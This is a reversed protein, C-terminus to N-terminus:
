DVILPTLGPLEKGALFQLMAGGGTSVFSFKDRLNFKRLVENTDGGGVISVARSGVIAEALKRTGDVYGKSTDGAPGNWVITGAISIMSIFRDLEEPLIDPEGVSYILRQSHYHPLKAIEAGVKGTVLVKDAVTLFHDIVPVKTEIKGGGIIVVLPRREHHFIKSLAEVESGFNLGAFSPLFKPLGVISAHSRHSSAFCENVFIDGLSALEKAFSDRNLEEQPDFRVNELFLIEGHSLSLVKERVEKGVVNKVYSVHSYTKGFFDVIPAVRDEEVVRGCPRGISGLVIVRAEAELLLNFTPQMRELRFPDSVSLKIQGLSGDSGATREKILPVDLDARVIVRRKHSVNLDVIKVRM